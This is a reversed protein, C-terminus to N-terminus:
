ESRTGAPDHHQRLFRDRAVEDLIKADEAAVILAHEELRRRRLSELAREDRRRELYEIRAREVGREAEELVATTRVVDADLRDIAALVVRLSGASAPLGDRLDTLSAELRHRAGRIAALSAAVSTSRAMANGYAVRALRSEASRWKLLRELAFRFPKM